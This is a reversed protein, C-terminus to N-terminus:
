GSFSLHFDGSPNCRPLLLARLLRGFKPMGFEAHLRVWEALNMRRLLATFRSAAM